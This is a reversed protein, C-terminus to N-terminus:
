ASSRTGFSVFGTSMALSPLPRSANTRVKKGVAVSVGTLKPLTGTPDLLLWIPVSVTVPNPGYWSASAVTPPALGPSKLTVPAVQARGPWTSCRPSVQGSVKVKVGPAFPGRLAVTVTLPSLLGFVVVIVTVPLPWSLVLAINEASGSGTRNPEPRGSSRGPRTRLTVIM